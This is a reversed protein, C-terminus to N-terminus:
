VGGTYTGVREETGTNRWQSELQITRLGVEKM